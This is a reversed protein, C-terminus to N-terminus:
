SINELIYFILEMIVPGESLQCAGGHIVPVLASDLDNMYQSPLPQGNSGAQYGVQDADLTVRLGLKTMGDEKLLKLHPCLALCFAKAVNETLRSHDAPDSLGNHQEDNELFFVETWRIVKGNAKYESGHFIKVSTISEMSKGDIPSVVGKNFNKDDDVWQIHVHEQPEEADIKGCPVTFDKMERLAQRLNDMNEATIQVMVGDEVISSKALYGSSSKLAGSFVFFSAGTVKRPQNHISIAQTQYNGDDNQVCVLHSDARENFCAGGALVHENSKNMAKMMENYRNSPIKISTKRVEMDVVLGQVVPLTYQYNRFDALLNMITHGTEGFLPKRFRVSFLPCPYLRYEAGLRLMLRIPFVKAWPTEWKQILIGFLYPPTPLVLDQLSQYAPTVYLFGGHEKSNLFSQSFFSHGLNGVVNGALADRYLQVFHSFIDKPLSKEDPLCQLLIVIESQGVAHMGKTTFCWCKRNVYNVIKVMSLLNANLVFVLPDPGGDELQQMVSIHSPKEEVAYDGKVGTSILIPPLGDEPILNMASGVPSGVQTISRSLTLTNETEAPSTSNNIPKSPDHSVALTGASTTGAVTLKAADAVEGNPLIGDAFWVRRQERPQAVEAGPHKLVGVPVMVTPPPSNLAGSAQAQQLPPITSCYEAPNNPNPSQSSASMMNEWAQANMLVSHCIVCVRAEKRDMYLLKCKLSCCAACFVKGCARCHHRRKTFTFRAECKMCNPAQSDPVWVPAVEGLTTFPKRTPIGFQGAGLDNDPSDSAAALCLSSSVVSEYEVSHEGGTEMVSACLSMEDSFSNPTLNENLKGKGSIENKNKSNGGCNPPVLDNQLHDLLPKPIQLKLNAPQKPRAGGFPVSLAQLSATPKPSTESPESSAPSCFNHLNKKIIQDGTCNLILGSKDTTENSRQEYISSYCESKSEEIEKEETVSDEKSPLTKPIHTFVPNQIGSSDSSSPLTSSVSMSMIGASSSDELEDLCMGKIDTDGETMGNCNDGNSCVEEHTVIHFLTENERCTQKSSIENQKLLEGNTMEQSESLCEAVSIFETTSLIKELKDPPNKLANGDQSTSHRDFHECHNDNKFADCQYTESIEPIGSKFKQTTQDVTSIEQSFAGHCSGPSNNRTKLETKQDVDSIDFNEGSSCGKQMKRTSDPLRHLTVINAAASGLVQFDENTNEEEKLHSSHGSSLCNSTAAVVSCHNVLDDTYLKNEQVTEKETDTDKETIGNVTVDIHDTKQAENDLTFSVTDMLSPSSYNKCDLLNGSQLTKKDCNHMVAVVLANKEEQLCPTEGCKNEEENMSNCQANQNSNRKIFQDDATVQDDIWVNPSESSIDLKNGNTCFNGEGISEAALHTLSLTKLKHPCEDPISENVNALSPNFSLRHSSPDLIQNWKAELLTPSVVEDKKKYM